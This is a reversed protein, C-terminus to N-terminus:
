QTKRRWNGVIYMTNSKSCEIIEVKRGRRSNVGFGPLFFTHLEILFFNRVSLLLLALIDKCQMQIPWWDFVQRSYISRSGMERELWSQIGALPYFNRNIRISNFQISGSWVSIANYLPQNIHQKWDCGASHLQSNKSVNGQALKNVGWAVVNGMSLCVTIIAMSPICEYWM